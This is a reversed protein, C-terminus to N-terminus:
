RMADLASDAMKMLLGAKNAITRLELEMHHLDMYLENTIEVKGTRNIKSYAQSVQPNVRKIVNEFATAQDQTMWTSLERILALLSHFWTYIDLSISSQDCATLLTNLRNLYSVAMNFEAKDQSEFDSM